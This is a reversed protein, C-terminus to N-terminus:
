PGTQCLQTLQELPLGCPGPGHFHFCLPARGSGRLARWLMGVRNVSTYGGM